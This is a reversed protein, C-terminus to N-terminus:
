LVDFVIGYRDERYLRFYKVAYDLSDVFLHAEDLLAAQEGDTVLVFPLRGVVDALGIKLGLCVNYLTRLGDATSVDYVRVYVTRNLGM